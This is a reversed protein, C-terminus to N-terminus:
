SKSGARSQEREYSKVLNGFTEFRRLYLAEFNLGFRTNKKTVCDLARLGFHIQPLEFYNVDFNVGLSFRM